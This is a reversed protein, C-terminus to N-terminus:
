SPQRAHSAAFIEGIVFFVVFIAVRRKVRQRVPALIGTIVAALGGAFGAVQQNVRQLVTSKLPNAKKCRTFCREGTDPFEPWFHKAVGAAEEQLSDDAFIRSIPIWSDKTWSM